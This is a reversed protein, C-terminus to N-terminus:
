VLYFGQLTTRVNGTPNTTLTHSTASGDLKRFTLTTGTIYTCCPSGDADIIDAGQINCLQLGSYGSASTFPLGKISQTSVSNANILLYIFVMRGIKVYSGNGITNNGSDLPTWTGEEYDDLTNADASANETAPFKIQGSVLDIMGGLRVDGTGTYIAYNNTAGSVDSISIGYNNTSAGSMARIIIGYKNTQTGTLAGISIGAALTGAGAMVAIGLGFRNTMTGTVGANKVYAGYATTITGDADENLIEFYGGYANSVTGGVGCSNIGARGYIGMQKDLTGCFTETGIYAGARIGYLGGNNTIGADITYNTMLVDYGYHYHAANETESITGTIRAILGTANTITATHNTALKESELEDIADQVTVAELAGSPTYTLYDAIISKSDVGDHDHGTSLNEIAAALNTLNADFETANLAAGKSARTVITISM